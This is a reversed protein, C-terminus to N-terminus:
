SDSAANAPKYHSGSSCKVAREWMKKGEERGDRREAQVSQSRPFMRSVANKYINISGYKLGECWVYIIVYRTHGRKMVLSRKLKFSLETFPSVLTFAHWMIVNKVSWSLVATLPFSTVTVLEIIDDQPECVTTAQLQLAM